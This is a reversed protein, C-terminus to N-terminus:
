RRTSSHYPRYTLPVARYRRLSQNTACARWRAAGLGTSCPAPRDNRGSRRGKPNRARSRGFATRCCAVSGPVGAVPWIGGRGSSGPVARERNLAYRLARLSRRGKPEPQARCVIARAARHRWSHRCPVCSHTRWLLLLRPNDHNDKKDARSTLFPRRARITGVSLSHDCPLSSDDDASHFHPFRRDVHERRVDHSSLRVAAPMGSSRIGARSM